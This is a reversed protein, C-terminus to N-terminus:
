SSRGAVIRRNCNQPHLYTSIFVNSSSWFGQATIDQITTRRTWALSFAVKRVDHAFGRSNTLIRIARSLWYCFTGANIPKNSRPNLFLHKSDCLPTRLTLYRRLYSAPCLNDNNKLIPFSIVPPSRNISQNKYLFGCYPLMSVSDRSFRITTHDIASLESARNGTALAVLFVTKLFLNMPSPNTCFEPKSLRTLATNVSWQPILKPPPPNKLFQAKSLLSFEEDSTSIGFGVRL